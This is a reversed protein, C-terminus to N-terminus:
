SVRIARVIMPTAVNSTLKTNIITIDDGIKQTTLGFMAQADTSVTANVVENNYKFFNSPKGSTLSGANVAFLANSYTGAIDGVTAESGTYGLYTSFFLPSYNIYSISQVTEWMKISSKRLQIGGALDQSEWNTRRFALSDVDWLIEQNFKEGLWQDVKTM